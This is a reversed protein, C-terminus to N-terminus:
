VERSSLFIKVDRSLGLGIGVPVGLREWEDGKLKYIALLDFFQEALVGGAKKIAAVRAEKGGRRNIFWEIYEDVLDDPAEDEMVRVPSSGRAVVGAAQQIAAPSPHPM